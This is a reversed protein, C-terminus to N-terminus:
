KGWKESAPCFSLSKGWCDHSPTLLPRQRKIRVGAWRSVHVAMGQCLIVDLGLGMGAAVFM